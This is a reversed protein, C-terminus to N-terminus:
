TLRPNEQHKIDPWGTGLGGERLLQTTGCFSLPLYKFVVLKQVGVQRDEDYWFSFTHDWRKSRSEAVEAYQQLKAVAHMLDYGELYTHEAIRLKQLPRDTALRGSLAVSLPEIDNPFQLGGWLLTQLSPWWVDTSPLPNSSPENLVESLQDTQACFVALSTVTAFSQEVLRWTAPELNKSLVLTLSSLSPYRPSTTSWGSNQVLGEMVGDCFQDIFLHKLRPASIIALLTPDSEADDSKLIHLASLSPFLASSISGASLEVHYNYLFLHTLAPLGGFITCFKTYPLPMETTHYIHLKTVMSLPPLCDSLCVGNLRITKLSAAGGTLIEHVSANVDEEDHDEDYISDGEIVPPGESLLSIINVSELLPACSSHLSNLVPSLSRCSLDCLIDLWRWRGIHPTIARMISSISPSRTTLYIYIDLPLNGSRTLNMEVMDLNHIQNSIDICTWLSPTNMAVNRWHRTVHSVTIGFSSTSQNDAEFVASLIENPISAVPASRNTLENFNTQMTALQVDLREVERIASASARANKTEQIHCAFSMLDGHDGHDSTKDMSNCGYKPSSTYISLYLMAFYVYVSIPCIPQQCMTTVKVVSESKSVTPAELQVESLNAVGKWAGYRISCGSPGFERVCLM